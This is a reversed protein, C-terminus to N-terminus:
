GVRRWSKSQEACVFGICILSLGLSWTCSMANDGYLVGWVTSTGWLAFGLLITICSLNFPTLHRRLTKM